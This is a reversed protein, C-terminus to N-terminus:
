EEFDVDDVGDDDLNDGDPVYDSDDDDDMNAWPVDEPLEIGDRDAFLV